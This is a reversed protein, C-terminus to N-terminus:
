KSDKPIFVGAKFAQALTKGKSMKDGVDDYSKFLIKYDKEEHAMLWKKLERVYESPSTLCEVDGALLLIRGVYIDIPKPMSANPSLFGPTGWWKWYVIPGVRLPHWKKAILKDIHGEISLSQSTM